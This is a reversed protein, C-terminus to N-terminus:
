YTIKKQIAVNERFLIDAIKHGAQGDGYINESNYKGNKIQFKIAQIIEDSDYKVDIVFIYQWYLQLM